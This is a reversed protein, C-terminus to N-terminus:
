DKEDKFTMNLIVSNIITRLERLEKISLNTTTDKGIKFTAFGFFRCYPVYHPHVSLQGIKISGDQIIEIM